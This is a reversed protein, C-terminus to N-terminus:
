FINKDKKVVYDILIILHNFLEPKKLKLKNLLMKFKRSNPDNYDHPENKTIHINLYDYVLTNTIYNNKYINILTNKIAPITYDKESKTFRSYNILKDSNLLYESKHTGCFKGYSKNSKCGCYFNDKGIHNCYSALYWPQSATTCLVHQKPFITSM